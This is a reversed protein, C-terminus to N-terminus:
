ILGTGNKVRDAMLEPPDLAPPPLPPPPGHGCGNCIVERGAGHRPWFM